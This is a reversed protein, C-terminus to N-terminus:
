EHVRWYLSNCNSWHGYGLFCPPIKGVAFNHASGSHERASASSLQLFYFTQWAKYLFLCCALHRSLFSPLTKCADLPVIESARLLGNCCFVMQQFRFDTKCFSSMHLQIGLGNWGHVLIGFQFHVFDPFKEMKLSRSKLSFDFGIYFGYVILCSVSILM